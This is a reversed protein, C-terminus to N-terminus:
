CGYSFIFASCQGVFTVSGHTKIVVLEPILIFFNRCLHFIKPSMMCLWIWCVHLGVSTSHVSSRDWCALKCVHDLALCRQYSDGWSAMLCSFCNMCEQRQPRTFNIFMISHLLHRTFATPHFWDCKEHRSSTWLLSSFLIMKSKHEDTQLWQQYFLAFLNKNNFALYTVSANGKLRRM